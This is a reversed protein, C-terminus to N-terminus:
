RKFDKRITKRSCGYKEALAYTSMGSLYDQKIEENDLEVIM